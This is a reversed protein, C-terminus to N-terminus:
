SSAGQRLNRGPWRCLMIALLQAAFWITKFVRWAFAPARTMKRMFQQGLTPEALYRDMSAEIDDLAAGGEEMAALIPEGIAAELDADIDSMFRAVYDWYESLAHVEDVTPMKPM